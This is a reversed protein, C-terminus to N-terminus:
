QMLQATLREHRTFFSKPRPPPGQSQHQIPQSGPRNRQPRGGNGRHGGDVGPGGNGGTMKIKSIVSILIVKEYM